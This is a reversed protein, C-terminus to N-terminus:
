SNFMWWIQSWLNLPRHMAVFLRFLAVACAFVGVLAAANLIFMLPQVTRSRIKVGISLLLAAATIPLVVNLIFRMQDVEPVLDIRHGGEPLPTGLAHMVMFTKGATFLIAAVLTIDCGIELKRLPAIPNM